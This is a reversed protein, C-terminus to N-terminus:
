VLSRSLELDCEELQNVQCFNDKIQDASQVGGIKIKNNILFAPFSNLGLEGAILSSSDHKEFDVKGDFAELFEEFNREATVSAQQGPQLILDVKNPIEQRAFYNANAVTSKLVFNGNLETFASSFKDYNHAEVVRSDFIYAPFANIGLNEAMKQGEETELWTNETKLNPFLGDLISLVRGTDCNFCDNSNLVTLSVEVDDLYTCESSELGPNKCIGIKGQVSCDGNSNCALNVAQADRNEPIGSFLYWAGLAAALVVVVAILVIKGSIEEDAMEKDASPEAKQKGELPAAKEKIEHKQIHKDEKGGADIVPTFGSPKISKKATESKEKIPEQASAAIPETKKEVSAEETTKESIEKEEESKETPKDKQSIKEASEVKEAPEQIEIEPDAKESEDQEGLQSQSEEKKTEWNEETERIRGSKEELFELRGGIRKKGTEYEEETIVGIQFSEKLFRLEEELKEKESLM